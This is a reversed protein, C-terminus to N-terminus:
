REPTMNLYPRGDIPLGLLRVEWHCHPGTSLGTSGVAGIAQGRTVVDGPRVDLRSMHGYLTALRNGHDIVVTLGYGGREEALVVVGAESARMPEGMGGNIDLGNHQKLENYIPHVRPGYGSVIKGNKIPNLFIGFTAAAAPQNKQRAALLTTISDSQSVQEAYRLEYDRRRQEIEEGLRQQELVATYAATQANAQAARTQELETHRGAVEDRAAAAVSREGDAQERLDEAQERLVAVRRVLEQRDIVVVEAYVQSKAVDEAAAANKLAAAFDPVPVTGGGVYAQIAQARLRRQETALRAETEALARDTEDLAAQKEDLWAQAGDLEAQVEVLRADLLFLEQALQTVRNLAAMQKQRIAAEEALTHQYEQQVASSPASQAAPRPAPDPEDQAVAPSPALLSSATVLAVSGWRL